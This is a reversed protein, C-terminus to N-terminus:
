TTPETYKTDIEVSVSSIGLRKCVKHVVGSGARPDFIVGKDDRNYHNRILREILSEPKQWPHVQQCMLADTFVGTRNSWHLMDGHFAVNHLAIVEIFRSYRKTTNKTSVPKM